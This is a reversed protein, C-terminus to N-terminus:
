LLSWKVKKAGFGANTTWERQSSALARGPEGHSGSSMGQVEERAPRSGKRLSVSRGRAMAGAPVAEGLYLCSKSVNCTCNWVVAIFYTEHM